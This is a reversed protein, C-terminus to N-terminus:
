TTGTNPIGGLAYLPTESGAVRTTATFEGPVTEEYLQGSYVDAQGPNLWTYQQGESSTATDTGPNTAIDAATAGNPLFGGASLAGVPTALNTSPSSGKGGGSGTGYPNGDWTGGGSGVSGAPITVATPTSSSGSSTKKSRMYLALTVVIGAAGIGVEAKHAKFWPGLKNM